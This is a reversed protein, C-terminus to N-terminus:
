LTPSDEQHVGSVKSNKGPHYSQHNITKPSGGKDGICQSSSLSTKWMRARPTRHNNNNHLELFELIWTHPILDFARSYDILFWKYPNNTQLAMSKSVMVGTCVKRSSKLIFHM